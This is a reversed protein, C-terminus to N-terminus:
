VGEFMREFSCSGIFTTFASRMTQEIVLLELLSRQVTSDYAATPPRCCTELPQLQGKEIEVLIASILSDRHCHDTQLQWHFM